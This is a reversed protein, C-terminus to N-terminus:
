KILIQIMNGFYAFTERDVQAQITVLPSNCKWVPVYVRSKM